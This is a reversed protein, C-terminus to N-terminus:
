SASCGTREHVWIVVDVARLLSMRPDGESLVRQSVWGEVLDRHTTLDQHLAVMTHVGCRESRNSLGYFGSVLSDLIPILEPLKRHLIKTLAVSTLGKVESVQNWADWFAVWGAAAKDGKGTTLAIEDLALFSEDDGALEVVNAMAKRLRHYANGNDASMEQLYKTRIPYSLWAPALLDGPVLRGPAPDVDYDPWGFGSAPSCYTELHRNACGTLEVISRM